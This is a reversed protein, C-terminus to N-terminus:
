SAAHSAPTNSGGAGSTRSDPKPSDPSSNWNSAQVASMRPRPRIWLSRRTATRSAKRLSTLTAIM